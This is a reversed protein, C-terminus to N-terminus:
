RLDFFISLLVVELITTHLGQAGPDLGSMNSHIKKGKFKFLSVSQCTQQDYVLDRM